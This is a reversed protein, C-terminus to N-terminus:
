SGGFLRAFFGRKGAPEGGIKRLVSYHFGEPEEDGPKYGCVLKSLDSPIEFMLDVDSEEGDEADQEARAKRIIAELEVPINGTVELASVSEGKEPDHVVRWSQEGGVYFRAESFMVSEYVSCAIAPGLITLRSLKGEFADEADASLVLLWDDKFQGMVTIRRWDPIDQPALVESVEMGLAEMAREASLGQVAVWSHSFGM